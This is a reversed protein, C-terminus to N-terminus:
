PCLCSARCLELDAAGFASDAEISSFMIAGPVPSHPCDRKSKDCDPWQLGAAHGLEHAAVKRLVPPRARDAVVYVRMPSDSQWGLVTFTKVGRKAAQEAEQSLVLPSTSEVRIIRPEWAAGLSEFSVIHNIRGSSFRMWDDTARMIDVREEASFSPDGRFM